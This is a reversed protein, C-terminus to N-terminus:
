DIEGAAEGSLPSLYEFIDEWVVRYCERTLVLTKSCALALAREVKEMTEQDKESEPERGEFVLAKGVAITRNLFRQLEPEGELFLRTGDPGEKSIRQAAKKLVDITVLPPHRM